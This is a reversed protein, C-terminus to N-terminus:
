ASAPWHTSWNLPLIKFDILHRQNLSVVFSTPGYISAKEVFRFISLEKEIRFTEQPCM